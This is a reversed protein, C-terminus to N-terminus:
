EPGYHREFVGDVGGVMAPSVADDEAGIGAGVVGMVPSVAGASPFIM